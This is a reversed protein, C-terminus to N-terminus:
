VVDCDTKSLLLSVWVGLVWIKSIGRCVMEPYCIVSRQM